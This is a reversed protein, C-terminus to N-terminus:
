RENDYVWTTTGCPSTYRIADDTETRTWGTWDVGAIQTTAKAETNPTPDVHGHHARGPVRTSM